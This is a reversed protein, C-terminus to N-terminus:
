INLKLGVKEGEEKVKMLPSIIWYKGNWKITKKKIWEMQFLFFFFLQWSQGLLINEDSGTSQYVIM